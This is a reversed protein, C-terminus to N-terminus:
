KFVVGFSLRVNDARQGELDTRIAGTGGLREITRDRIFVPNYDFQFARIAFRDSVKVDLGGGLFLTFDTSSTNFSSTTNTTGTSTTTTSRTEAEFRTNAVGALAHLFPQARTDNRFKVTPGVSFNFRRTNLDNATTTGATTGTGTFERGKQHFSFDGTIGVRPTFFATAAAHVGNLGVRDGFARDIPNQTTTNTQFGTLGESQLNSYGVFFEPGEDDTTSQAFSVPAAILLFLALFLLKRM